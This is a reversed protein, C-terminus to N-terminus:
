LQHLGDLVKQLTEPGPGPQIPRAPLADPSRRPLATAASTGDGAPGTAVAAGSFATISTM